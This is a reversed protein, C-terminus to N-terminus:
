QKDLDDMLNWPWVSQFIPSKFGAQTCIAVFHHGFNATAYFLHGITLNDTLNWPGVTWFISSKSGFQTNGPQLSLKFECIAVLYHVFSSTYYFIHGITKSTMRWIELDCPGFFQRIQGSNPTEPSYSWNSNMSPWSIIWSVQLPMSSIGKKKPWGDFKLTVPASFDFIQSWNSRKWIVM